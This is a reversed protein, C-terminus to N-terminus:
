SSAETSHALTHTLTRTLETVTDLLAPVAGFGGAKTVVIKGAATGGEVVGVPIGEQIAGTIRLAQARTADLVARAGDGGVLVLAGVSARSLTQQVVSALSRAIAAGSLTASGGVAEPSIIVVVRPLSEPLELEGAAWQALRNPQDLLSEDPQVIRLDVSELQSRLHDTQARAVDHLSSVVVVIRQGLAAPAPEPSTRVAGSEAWATALAAALGASGAPIAAPGVVVLAAALARLDDDSAANVVVVGDGAANRLAQADREASGSLSITTTGPLLQSFESTPVPTVPDRGAPSDEVPGGHVRLLGDEVTRGMAPYAPCVVAFCGPHQEQWADLAGAVQAPVSGRMTSDIKLYLHDAGASVLNRIASATARRATAADMARADTNVALASGPAVSDPLLEGLLLRSSWGSRSFQVVSDTAGTVDDAAIGVIPASSTM